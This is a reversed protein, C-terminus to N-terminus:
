FTPLEIEEIEARIELQKAYDEMTKLQSELLFLSCKPNFPLTGKKARQLMSELGNKRIVLQAYEGIFREKFDSSNMMEVTDQLNM